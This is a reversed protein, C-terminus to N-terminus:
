RRATGSLHRRRCWAASSGPIFDQYLGEEVHVRLPRETSPQDVKEAGRWCAASDSRELKMPDAPM